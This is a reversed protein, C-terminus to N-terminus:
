TRERVSIAKLLSPPLSTPSSNLAVEPAAAAAAAGPAVVAAVVAAAAVVTFVVPAHCKELLQRQKM